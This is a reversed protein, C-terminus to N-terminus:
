EKDELKFDNLGDNITIDILRQNKNFVTDVAQIYIKGDTHSKYRYQYITRNDPYIVSQPYGLTLKVDEQTSIGLTLKDLKAYNIPKGIETNSCASLALTACLMLSLQKM